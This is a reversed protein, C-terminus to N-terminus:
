SNRKLVLTVIEPAACIRVPPGWTGAGSTLYFKMKGIESLGKKVGYVAEAFYKGPWLQGEHVHASLMLDVGASEAEKMRTPTHHMLIIPLNAGGRKIGGRKAPPSDFPPTNRAEKVLKEIAIKKANFSRGGSEDDLGILIVKGDIVASQNMLLRIGAENALEDFQKIGTYFEHNGNVAFVGDAAEIRSLPESLWPMRDIADDILDGIIM